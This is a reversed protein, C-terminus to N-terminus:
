SYAGNGDLSNSFFFDDSEQFVPVLYDSLFNPSAVSYLLEWIYYIVQAELSCIFCLLHTNYPHGRITSSEVGLRATSYEPPTIIM